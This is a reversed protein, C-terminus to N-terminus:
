TGSSGFGNAGRSTGDLSDVTYMKVTTVPTLIMQAIKEGKLFSQRGVVEARLRNDIVGFSSITRNEIRGPNFFAVIIEGIYENDIVGAVVFLERKTAVSSRDRILAGMGLPFGCAIGTRVKTVHGPELTTDELAYLDYGLDGPHAKTPVTADEHLMQVRLAHRRLSDAWNPMQGLQQQKAQEPTMANFWTGQAGTGAVTLSSSPPLSGSPDVVQMYGSTHIMPYIFFGPLHKV